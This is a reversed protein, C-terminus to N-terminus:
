PVHAPREVTSAKVPSTFAQKRPKAQTRLCKKPRHVQPM